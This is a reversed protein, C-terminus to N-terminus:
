NFSFKKKGRQAIRAQAAVANQAATPRKVGSLKKVEHGNCRATNIGCFNCAGFLKKFREPEFWIKGREYLNQLITRNTVASSFQPSCFSFQVASCKMSYITSNGMATPPEM